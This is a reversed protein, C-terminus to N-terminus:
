KPPPTVKPFQGRLAWYSLNKGKQADRYIIKRRSAATGSYATYFKELRMWPLPHRNRAISLVEVYRVLDNYKAKPLLEYYGALPRLPDNTEMVKLFGDFMKKLDTRKLSPDFSITKAFLPAPTEPKLEMFSFSRCAAHHNEVANQFRSWTSGMSNQFINGYFLLSVLCHDGGHKKVWTPFDNWASLVDREKKSIQPQHCFNWFEDNYTLTKIRLHFLQKNPLPHRPM